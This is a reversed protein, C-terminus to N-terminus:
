IVRVPQEWVVLFICGKESALAHASGPPCVELSGAPHTGADDILEGHLVYILEHGSHLHRAVRAGPSYRLLAAAPGQPDISRTDYLRVIEVGRRQDAGYPQWDLSNFDFDPDALGNLLMSAVPIAVTSQNIASTQQTQM